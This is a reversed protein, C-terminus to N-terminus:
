TLSRCFEFVFIGIIGLIVWRIILSPIATGDKLEEMGERMMRKSTEEWRKSIEEAWNGAPTVTAPLYPVDTLVDGVVKM